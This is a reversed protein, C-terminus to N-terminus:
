APTVAVVPEVSPVTAGPTPEPTVLVQRVGDLSNPVAVQAMGDPRALFVAETAVPQANPGDPLVWVQYVDGEPLRPMGRGVLVGRDGQIRLVVTSGPPEVQARVSRVEPDEDVLLAGGLGGVALLVLATLGALAARPFSLSFGFRRRERPARQAAPEPRDQAPGAAALLAAEAEVVAMIRDRLEPPPVRPPASAPLAAAAVGLSEAEARCVPCGALHAEFGDRDGPPLAGLLWAAVDEGWREHGPAASM